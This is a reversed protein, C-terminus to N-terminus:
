GAGANFAAISCLVVVAVGAAGVNLCVVRGNLAWNARAATVHCVSHDCFVYCVFLCVATRIVAYLCASFM